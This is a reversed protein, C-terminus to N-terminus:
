KKEKMEPKEDQAFATYGIATFGLVAAILLVKKM